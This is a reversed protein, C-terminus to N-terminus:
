RKSSLVFHLFLIQAFVPTFLNLLPIYNFTSAIMALITSKKKTGQKDLSLLATVDYRTPKNILISWLYLMVIQGLIPIFLIPLTLLFLILFLGTAKLTLLVSTTMSPTGEATVEPYHKAILRKLLKESQLSTLLSVIIIFLIYVLLLNVIGAGTTQLWEWPIWSLYSGVAATLTGWFLWVLIASLAFSLIGIKFVFALVDRSLIDQLSKTIITKM